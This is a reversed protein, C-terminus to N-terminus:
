NLLSLMLSRFHKTSPPDHKGDAQRLCTPCIPPTPRVAAPSPIPTYAPAVYSRRGLLRNEVYELFNSTASPQGEIVADADAGGGDPAQRIVLPAVTEGEEAGPPRPLALETTPALLGMPGRPVMRALGAGSAPPALTTDGTADRSPVARPSTSGPPLTATLAAMPFCTGSAPVAFAGRPLPVRGKRPLVPEALARSADEKSPVSTAGAICPVPMAVLSRRPSAETGRGFWARRRPAGEELGVGTGCTLVPRVTISRSGERAGPATVGPM